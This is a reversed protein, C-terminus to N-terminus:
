SVDKQARRMTEAEGKARYYDMQLAQFRTKWDDGEEEQGVHRAQTATKEKRDEEMERMEREEELKREKDLLEAKMRRVEDEAEERRRREEDLELAAKRALTGQSAPM